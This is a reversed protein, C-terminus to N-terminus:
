KDKSFFHAEVGACLAHYIKVHWEQVEATTAGPARIAIDAFGAMRGGDPGTLSIATMGKMDAVAMAMLVDEAEGSTSLGLLCDEERGLALCEQALFLRPTEADNIVATALAGNAGLTIAPLGYELEAALTKGCPLPALAERDAALLPRPAEFAKLLEGSIHLADAFSGGNGATLLKGGNEFCACLEAHAAEIAPLCESLEPWRGLRRSYFSESM